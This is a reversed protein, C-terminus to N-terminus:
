ISIFQHCVATQLLPNPRVWYLAFTIITGCRIYSTAICIYVSRQNIPPSCNPRCRTCRSLSGPCPDMVGEVGPLLRGGLWGLGGIQATLNLQGYICLCQINEINHESVDCGCAKGCYLCCYVPLEGVHWANSFDLNPGVTKCVISVCVCHVNHLLSLIM